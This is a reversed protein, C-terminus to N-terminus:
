HLVVDGALGKDLAAVVVGLCQLLAKAGVVLLSGGDDVVVALVADPMTDISTLLRALHPLVHKGDKLALFLAATRTVLTDPPEEM